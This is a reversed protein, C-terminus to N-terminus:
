DCYLIQEDHVCSCLLFFFFIGVRCEFPVPFEGCADRLSVAAQGMEDDKSLDDHDRVIM